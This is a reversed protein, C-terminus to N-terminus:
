LVQVDPPVYVYHRGAAFCDYRSRLRRHLQLPSLLATSCSRRLVRLRSRLRVLANIAVGASTYCAAINAMERHM